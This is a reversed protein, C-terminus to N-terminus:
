QRRDILVNPLNSMEAKGTAVTSTLVDLSPSYKALQIKILQATNYFCHDTIERRPDGM